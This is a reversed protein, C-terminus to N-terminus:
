LENVEFELTNVAAKLSQINATDPRGQRRGKLEPLILEALMKYAKSVSSDSLYMAPVRSAESSKVRASTPIPPPLLPFGHEEGMELLMRYFAKHTTNKDTYNTVVCGLLHLSPNLYRRVKLQVSELLTLLGRVSGAEAFLPVLYYHASTLASILLCNWDPHTDIIVIDYESLAECNLVGQILLHNHPEAAMQDRVRILEHDGAIVDIGNISTSLRVQDLSLDNMIAKSLSLSREQAQELVGLHETASGQFDADILLVKKGLLAFAGSLNVATVTKGVGGKSNTIVIISTKMSPISSNLNLESTPFQCHMTLEWELDTVEDQYKPNHPSLANDIEEAEPDSFVCLEANNM